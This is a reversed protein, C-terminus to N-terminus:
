KLGLKEMTTPHAARVENNGPMLLLILLKTTEHTRNNNMNNVNNGTCLPGGERLSGLIEGQQSTKDIPWHSLVYYDSKDIGVM